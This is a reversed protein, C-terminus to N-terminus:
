LPGGGVTYAQQIFAPPGEAIETGPKPNLTQIFVLILPM